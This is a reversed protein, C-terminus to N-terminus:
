AKLFKGGRGGGMRIEMITIPYLAEVQKKKLKYMATLAGKVDEYVIHQDPYVVMFDVRYTVNGPLHFPVQRLFYTIVGQSQMGKLEQYRHMEAKSDFLIGDATRQAAPAVGYKSPAPIGMRKRLYLPLDTAKIM